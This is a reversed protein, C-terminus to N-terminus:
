GFSRQNQRFQRWSERLKRCLFIKPHDRSEENKADYKNAQLGIQIECGIGMIADRGTQKEPFDALKVLNVCIKRRFTQEFIFQDLRIRLFRSNGEHKIRKFNYKLLKIRPKRSEASASIKAVFLILNVSSFIFNSRFM